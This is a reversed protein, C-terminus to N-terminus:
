KGVVFPKLQGLREIVETADKDGVKAAKLAAALHGGMVRFEEDTLKTGALVVEPGPGTYRLPGNTYDSLVEVMAQELREREKGEWKYKGGRSLDAKPDKLGADVFDKVVARVVKEGGLKDWLPRASTAQQVGDLAERLAFAGVEPPMGAAADLSRGVAAALGPRHGLLPRLATLSGQYLRFCGEYNKDGWLKTGLVVTEYAAESVRRDLVRRDVPGDDARATLGLGGAALLTATIARM